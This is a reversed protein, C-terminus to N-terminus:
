HIDYSQDSFDLRLAIRGENIQWEYLTYDRVGHSHFPDADLIQKAQDRNAARVVFMGRPPGQGETSIFPGAAVLIGKKELEIQRELHETLYESIDPGDERQESLAVFLRLKLMPEMLRTAVPDIGDLMPGRGPVPPTNDDAVRNPETNM